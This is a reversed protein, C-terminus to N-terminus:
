QKLLNNYRGHVNKDVYNSIQWISVEVVGILQCGYDNSNHASLLLSYPIILLLYYRYIGAVQIDGTEYIKGMTAIYKVYLLYMHHLSLVYQYWEM